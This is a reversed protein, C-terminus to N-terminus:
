IIRMLLLKEDNHSVDHTHMDPVFLLLMFFSFHSVSIFFLLAYKAVKPNFYLPMDMFIAYHETIAFDHMMVPGSVTITVEDQMVGDKSVVRYICYPPQFQYGFTFLEGSM